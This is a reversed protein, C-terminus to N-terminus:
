VVPPYKGQRYEEALKVYDRALREGPCEDEGLTRIVRGPVGLVLSDPPIKMREPVLCGAGVLSGEGVVAGDLVIAGMGILCRDEIVCGHLIVRHGATVWAGIRCPRRRTVHLVSLDQINSGTGVEVFNIDGRLVSGHWISAQPGLRVDGILHVGPAVFVSPDISQYPNRHM